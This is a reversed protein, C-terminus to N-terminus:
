SLDVVNTTCAANSHVVEGVAVVNGGLEHIHGFLHARRVKYQTAAAMGDLGYGLDLVGAPPYHTVLVDCEPVARVRDLLEARPVEWNWTDYIFPIGVHGCFTLGGFDLVENAFLEHVPNGRAAFMARYSVFDHNGQLVVVPVSADPLLASTEAAHERVWEEQLRRETSPVIRYGSGEECPSAWAGRDRKRVPFNPLLDGTVVYLDGEPLKGNVLGMKHGHWDSAHVIRM